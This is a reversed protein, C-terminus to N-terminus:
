SANETTGLVLFHLFERLLEVVQAFTFTDDKSGQENFPIENKPPDLTNSPFSFCVLSM